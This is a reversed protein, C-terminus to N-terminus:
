FATRQVFPGKKVSRSMAIQRRKSQRQARKVISRTTSYKKHKRTKCASRRSAGRAHCARASRCPEQGRRRRAPPRVPEHGVGRVTRASVWTVSAAPRVSTSTRTTPTASRCRHHRQCNMPLMRVEGSPLRVQPTARRGQGDAARRQRCLPRDPRRKGPKIEINHILTGVPINAM